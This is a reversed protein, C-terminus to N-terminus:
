EARIQFVQETLETLGRDRLHPNQALTDESSLLTVEFGEYARRVEAETVPFPPGEMQGEPYRITVLLTQASKPLAARMLAVYRRRMELPLAILSARDYVGAVHALDAPTLDFIDGCLLTLGDAQWREFRPGKEVVPDLGNEAFFDRVAIRSLEVGLVPHGRARLWLMDRSKGCLPVFVTAHTPVGLSPWQRLLAANTEEQHFATQGKEWRELWFERDVDEARSREGM